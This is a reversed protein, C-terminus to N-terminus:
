GATWYLAIGTTSEAAELPPGYSAASTTTRRRLPMAWGSSTRTAMMPLTSLPLDVRTPTIVRLHARDYHRADNLSMCSAQARTMGTNIM